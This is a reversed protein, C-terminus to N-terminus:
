KLISFSPPEHDVPAPARDDQFYVASELTGACSFTRAAGM